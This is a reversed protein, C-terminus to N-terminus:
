LPFNEETQFWNCLARQPEPPSTDFMPFYVQHRRSQKDSLHLWFIAWLQMMPISSETKVSDGAGYRACCTSVVVWLGVQPNRVHLTQQSRNGPLWWLGWFTVCSWDCQIPYFLLSVLCGAWHWPKLCVSFFSAPETVLTTTLCRSCMCGERLVVASVHSLESDHM